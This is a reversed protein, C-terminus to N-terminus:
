RSAWTRMLNKKLEKWIKWVDDESWNYHPYHECFNSIKKVLKTYNCDHGMYDQRHSFIIGHNRQIVFLGGLQHHHGQGHFYGSLFDIIFFQGFIGRRMILQRMLLVM